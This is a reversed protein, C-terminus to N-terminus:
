PFRNLRILANQNVPVVETTESYGVNIVHVSVKSAGWLSPLELSFLGNATSLILSNSTWIGAGTPAVSVIAGVIGEGTSADIVRGRFSFNSIPGNSQTIPLSPAGAPASACKKKITDDEDDLLKLSVFFTLNECAKNSDGTKIAELVLNSQARHREVAQTATDNDKAVRVTNWNNILAVTFNGILGLTAVFLGIVMPNWWRSRKLEAERASVERERLKLERDRDATEQAFRSEELSPKDPDGFLSM